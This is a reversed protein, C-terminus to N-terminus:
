PFGRPTRSNEWAYTGFNWAALTSGRALRSGAFPAAMDSQEFAARSATRTPTTANTGDSEAPRSASVRGAAGPPSPALPSRGVRSGPAGLDVPGRPSRVFRKDGLCSWTHRRIAAM